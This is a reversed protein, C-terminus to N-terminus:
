LFYFIIQVLFSIGSCGLQFLNEKEFKKFVSGKIEVFQNSLLLTLLSNSYSNVAVNLTMVQYFLGVTHLYVYFLAIIFHTFQNFGRVSTNISTPPTFLSELIDHGFASCLKDCIKLLFYTFFIVKNYVELLNFIMYLKIISQGRITHYVKSADVSRIFYLAGIFILGKM